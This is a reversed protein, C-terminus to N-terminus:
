IATEGEGVAEDGTSLRAYGADVCYTLQVPGENRLIDVVDAYADFHFPINLVPGWPYDWVKLPEKGVITDFQLRAFAQEADHLWVVAKVSTAKSMRSLSYSHITRSQQQDSAGLGEAVREPAAEDRHPRVDHATLRDGDNEGAM